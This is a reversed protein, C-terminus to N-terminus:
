QCTCYQVFLQALETTDGQGCAGGSAFANGQEQNNEFCACNAGQCGLFVMTGTSDTAQCGCKGGLTGCAPNTCSGLPGTGPPTTTPVDYGLSSDSPAAADSADPDDLPADGGEDVPPAADDPSAPSTPDTSGGSGGGSSGGSSGGYGGGALNGDGPPLTSTQSSCAVGALALTLAALAFFPSRIKM